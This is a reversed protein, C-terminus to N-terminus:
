DEVSRQPIQKFAEKIKLREEPSPLFSEGGTTIDMSQKNPHLKDLIKLFTKQLIEYKVKDGEQEKGEIIRESLSLMKNLLKTMRKLQNSEIEFGKRGGRKNGKKFQTDESPM